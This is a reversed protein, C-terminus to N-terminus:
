IRGSMAREHLKVSVDVTLIAEAQQAIGAKVQEMREKAQEVAAEDKDIKAQAAAIIALERKKTAELAAECRELQERAKDLESRGSLLSERAKLAERVAKELKLVKPLMREKDKGNTIFIDPANLVEYAEKPTRNAWDGILGQRYGDNCGRLLRITCRRSAENAPRLNGTATDQMSLWAELQTWFRGQYQRDLLILVSMGLYLLNSTRLMQDFAAAQDKSKPTIM